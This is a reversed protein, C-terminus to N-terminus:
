YIRFEFSVLKAAVVFVVNSRNCKRMDSLFIGNLHKVWVSVAEDVHYCLANPNASILFWKGCADMRCMENLLSSGM